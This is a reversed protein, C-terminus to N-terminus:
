SARKTAAGVNAVWSHARLYDFNVQGWLELPFMCLIAALAAAPWRLTAGLMAFVYVVFAIAGASM